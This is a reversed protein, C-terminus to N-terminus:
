AMEVRKFQRLMSAYPALLDSMSFQSDSGSSPDAATYGYDGLKESKFTTDRKSMRYADSVIRTAVYQLDAPITAYGAKYWVFVSLPSASFRGEIIWKTNASVRSEIAEDPIQLDYEDGAGLVYASFPQIKRTDYSDMGSDITLTWGTVLEVVAKLTTATAYTALTLDHAEYDVLTLTVGDCSAFAEPSTGAYSLRALDQASCSVQYLRTIPYQNLKLYATGTGDYWERYETEAFTRDCVKEIAASAQAILATIKANVTADAISVGLYKGVDNCTILNGM